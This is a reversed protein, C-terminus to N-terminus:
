NDLHNVVTRVLSSGKVRDRRLQSAVGLKPGRLELMLEASRLMLCARLDVSLTTCHLGRWTGVGTLFLRMVYRSAEREKEGGRKQSEPLKSKRPTSGQSATPPCALQLSPTATTILGIETQHVIPPGATVGSLLRRASRRRSMKRNQPTERLFHTTSQDQGQKLPAKGTERSNVSSLSPRHHIDMAPPSIGMDKDATQTRIGVHDLGAAM